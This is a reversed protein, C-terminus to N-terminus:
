QSFRRCGFAIWQPPYAKLPNPYTWLVQCPRIQYMIGRYGESFHECRCHMVSQVHSALSPMSSRGTMPDPQSTPMEWFGLFLTPGSEGGTRVVWPAQSAFHENGANMPGEM